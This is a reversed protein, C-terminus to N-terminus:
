PVSLGVGFVWGPLAFDSSGFDLGVDVTASLWSTLRHVSMLHPRVFLDVAAAAMPRGGSYQYDTAHLDVNAMRLGFAFGPRLEVGEGLTLRAQADPGLLILTAAGPSAAAAAPSQPGPGRLISVGQGVLGVEFHPAVYEFRVAFGAVVAADPYGLDRGSARLSANGVGDAQFTMAGIPQAGTVVALSLGLPPEAYPRDPGRPPPIGDGSMAHAPSIALATAAFSALFAPTHRDLTM